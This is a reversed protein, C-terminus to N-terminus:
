IEGDCSHDSVQSFHIATLLPFGNQGGAPDEYSITVDLLCVILKVDLLVEVELCAAFIGRLDRLYAAGM